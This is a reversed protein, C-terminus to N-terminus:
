QTSDTLVAVRADLPACLLGAVAAQNEHGGIGIVAGDGIDVELRVPRDVAQEARGLCGPVPDRRPKIVGQLGCGAPLSDPAQEGLSALEGPRPSQELALAEGYYLSLGRRDM